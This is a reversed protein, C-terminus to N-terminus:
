SEKTTSTLALFADDLSRPVVRLDTGGLQIVRAALADSDPHHLDVRAGGQKILQTGPLNLRALSFDPITATLDARPLAAAVAAKLDTYNALAM